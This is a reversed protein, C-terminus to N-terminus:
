NHLKKPILMTTLSIDESVMTAWSNSKVEFVAVAATPFHGTKGNSLKRALVEMGMNHGIVMLSKVEEPASKICSLIENDPALYLSQIYVINVETQLSECLAKCTQKTRKAPSSLLIEPVLGGEELLSGIISADHKGSKKLPRDIDALGAEDSAKGHRMLFLTKLDSM